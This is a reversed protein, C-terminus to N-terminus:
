CYVPIYPLFKLLLPVQFYLWQHLFQWGVRLPLPLLLVPVQLLPLEPLRPNHPM